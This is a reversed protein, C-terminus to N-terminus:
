SLPPEEPLPAPSQVKVMVKQVSVGGKMDTVTCRVEYDGERTWTFTGEASNRGLSRLGSSWSYALTDGDPDSATAIFSVPQGVVVSVEARDLM